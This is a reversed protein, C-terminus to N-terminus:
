KDFHLAKPKGTQGQRNYFLMDSFVKCYTKERFLLNKHISDDQVFANCSLQALHVFCAIASSKQLCTFSNFLPCQHPYEVHRIKLM